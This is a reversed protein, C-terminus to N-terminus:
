DFFSDLSMVIQALVYFKSDITLVGGLYIQGLGFNFKIKRPTVDKSMVEM